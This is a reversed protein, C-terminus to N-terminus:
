RGVWGRAGGRGKEDKEIEMRRVQVPSSVFKSFLPFLYVIFTAFINM